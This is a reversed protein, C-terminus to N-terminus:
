NDQQQKIQKVFQVMDNGLREEKSEENKNSIHRKVLQLLELDEDFTMDKLKNRLKDNVVGESHMKHILVM